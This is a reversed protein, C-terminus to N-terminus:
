GGDELGVSEQAPQTWEPTHNNTEALRAAESRGRMTGSRYSAM